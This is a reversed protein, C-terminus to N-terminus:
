PRFTPSTPRSATTLSARKFAPCSPRPNDPLAWSTVIFLAVSTHIGPSSCECLSLPDTRPPLSTISFASNCNCALNRELKDKSRAVLITSAGLSALTIAAAKGIGTSSGCILDVKGALALNMTNFSWHEILSLVRRRVKDGCKTEM